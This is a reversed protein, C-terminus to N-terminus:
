CKNIKNVSFLASYKSNRIDINGVEAMENAQFLFKDSQMYDANIVNVSIYFCLPSHKHNVANVVYQSENKKNLIITINNKNYAIIRNKKLELYHTIQFDDKINNKVNNSCAVLIFIPLARLMKKM